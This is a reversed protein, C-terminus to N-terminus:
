LRVVPAIHQKNQLLILEWMQMVVVVAAMNIFFLTPKYPLLEQLLRVKVEYLGPNQLSSEGIDLQYLCTSPSVSHSTEQTQQAPLRKFRSPLFM